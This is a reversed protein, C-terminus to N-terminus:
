PADETPDREVFLSRVRSSVIRMSALRMEFPHGVVIWGTRIASGGSTAGELRVVTPEPFLAGGTVFAHRGDALLVFRYISNHTEVVLTTGPRLSDLAISDAPVSGQTRLSVM